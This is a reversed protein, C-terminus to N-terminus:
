NLETRVCPRDTYHEHSYFRAMPYQLRLNSLTQAKEFLLMSTVDVKDIVLGDFIAEYYETM